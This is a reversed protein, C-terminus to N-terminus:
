LDDWTDPFTLPPVSPTANDVVIKKTGNKNRHRVPVTTAKEISWRMVFLRGHLVSPHMGIEEAVALLLQRRGQYEVYVSNRRNRAQEVRTAWRCNSPEYHGNVDEREITYSSEPKVGMDALFNAFTQWRECVTIGRGGYDKYSHAKENECRSRMHEWSRYENPYASTIGFHPGAGYIHGKGCSKKIGALLKDSRTVCENGCKCLCRWAAFKRISGARALVTLFGFERGILNILNGNKGM